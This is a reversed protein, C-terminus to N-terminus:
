VTAVMRVIRMASIQVNTEMIDWKVPAVLVMNETAFIKVITQASKHASTGMSVLLADEVVIALLRTVNLLIVTQQAPSTAITGMFDLSVNVLVIDQEKFVNVQIVTHLVLSRVGMEMSVLRADMRVFEMLKKVGVRVIKMAPIDVNGVLSVKKACQVLVVRKNVVTWVTSLVHNMANIVMSVLLVDLTVTAQLRTVILLIVIQPVLTKVSHVMSDLSADMSVPVQSMMVYAWNVIQQALHVAISTMSAVTAGMLVHVLRVIVAMKVIKMAPTEVNKEMIGLKVCAVFVTKEIVPTKAIRLASIHANTVMSVLLVAEVVTVLSRIVNMLIVIKQVPPTAIIVMSDLSANVM